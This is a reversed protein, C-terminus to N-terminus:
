VGANIVWVRQENPVPLANLQAEITLDRGAGAEDRYVTVGRVDIGADGGTRDVMEMARAVPAFAANGVQYGQPVAAVKGTPWVKTRTTAYGGDTYVDHSTEIIFFRFSTGFEDQIRQTLEDRTLSVNTFPRPADAQIEKFTSLRMVAGGVSGIADIAAELFAIFENYANAAVNWATGATQYRSASFGFGATYTQGTQPNRQVIQGNAWASFVDLELRRYDASAMLDTRLPIDAMIIQKFLEANGLARETLKQMEYENLKFYAEIPVMSLERQAPTLMHVMRGRAGWERRDAVPRHDLTGIEALDVSDVNTRPMFVDWLLRGDDNPSITQARVTLAVSSLNQIAGLWSFDPM